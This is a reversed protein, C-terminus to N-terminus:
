ETEESSEPMLDFHCVARRPKVALDLAADAVHSPDADFRYAYCDPCTAASKDVISGCVACLKYSTPDNSVTTAIERRNTRMRVLIGREEAKQCAKGSDYKGNEVGRNLAM